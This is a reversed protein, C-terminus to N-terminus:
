SLVPKTTTDIKVKPLKDCFAKSMFCHSAGSDMLALTSKGELTIKLLPAKDESLTGCMGRFASPRGEQMPNQKDVMEDLNEIECQDENLIEDEDIEMCAIEAEIRASAEDAKLVAEEEEFQRCYAQFAEEEEVEATALSIEM